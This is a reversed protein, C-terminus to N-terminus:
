ARARAAGRWRVFAPHTSQRALLQIPHTNGTATQTSARRNGTPPCRTRNSLRFEGSSSTPARAALGRGLAECFPLVGDLLM